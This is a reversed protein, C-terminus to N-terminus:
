EKVLEREIKLLENLKALREKGLIGTKIIPCQFGLALHAITNDMTEGSRHSIIPSIDKSKCFDIIKKVELLSGNQNPKVILSNICNEKIAKEVRAFNTTTLDDGALMCDLDESEIRKLLEAFGSFDEDDLPDEVYSLEFKKILELIYSIQQQKNRKTSTNNYYYNSGHFLISAAADIGIDLGYSFRERIEQKIEQM